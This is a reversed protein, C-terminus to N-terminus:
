YQPNSQLLRCDATTLGAISVIPLRASGRCDAAPRLHGRQNCHRCKPSNRCEKALHGVQQCNFCNKNSNALSMPPRRNERNPQNAIQQRLEQIEYQLIKLFEKVASNKETNSRAACINLKPSSRERSRIKPSQRRTEETMTIAQIHRTSSHQTYDLNALEETKNISEYLLAAAAAESMNTPEKDWKYSRQADDLLSRVFFDLLIEDRTASSQKSFGKSGIEQFWQLLQPVTEKEKRKRARM